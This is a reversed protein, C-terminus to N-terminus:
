QVYIRNFEPIKEELEHLKRDIRSDCLLEKNFSEKQITTFVTQLLDKIGEIGYFAEETSQEQLQELAGQLKNLYSLMDKVKRQADFLEATEQTWAQLKGRKNERLGEYEVRKEKLDKIKEYCNNLNTQKKDCEKELDGKTETTNKIIDEWRKIEKSTSLAMPIGIFPIILLGYGINRVTEKEAKKVNARDQTETTHLLQVQSHHLEDRTKDKENKVAILQKNVDELQNTLNVIEQELSESAMDEIKHDVGDRIEKCKQVSNQIETHALEVESRFRRGETDSLPKDSAHIVIDALTVVSTLTDLYHPLVQKKFNNKDDM